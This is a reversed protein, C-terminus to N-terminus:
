IKALNLNKKRGGCNERVNILLGNSNWKGHKVRLFNSKIYWCRKGSKKIVLIMKEVTGHRVGLFNNKM